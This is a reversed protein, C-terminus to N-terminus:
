VAKLARVVQMGSMRWAPYVGSLLGFVLCIILSIFLVKLNLTLHAHPIFGNTNFIRIAAWSLLLGIFGGIFTLILNEIVFQLALVNSSAGFAKRVGIESSREMIRSANVNVLNLTPLLMFLFLCSYLILMMRAYGDGGSKSRFINRSVGALYTDANVTVKSMDGEGPIKAAMADFERRMEPVEAKSRAVLALIFGGHLRTSKLDNKGVTFPLYLDGLTFRDSGPADKVVGIVRYQENDAVLYKGVVNGVDGFYREKLNQSIVAVKESNDIEKQGFAKGELFQFDFARWFDANTHKVGM